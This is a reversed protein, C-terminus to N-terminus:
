GYLSEEGWVDWGFLSGLVGLPYLYLPTFTMMDDFLADISEKGM